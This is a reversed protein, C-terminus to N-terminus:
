GDRAWRGALTAAVTMSQGGVLSIANAGLLALAPIRDTAAKATAMDASM